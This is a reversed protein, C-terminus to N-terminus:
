RRKFVLPVRDPTNSLYQESSTIRAFRQEFTEGNFEPEEKVEVRYKLMMMTIVAVSETEFFRRGLCARVGSSFPLFADRPWDELFRDPRFTHPDKWYRPNYHLAPLHLQIDTGSPVPFTTKGGDVNNVTLITDEAARKPVSPAGPFMRLTEYLVALSLTFRNMDEYTPMGDVDAMIVKIQQYLREQVSPYLALLAFAFCLTHATTEHGALLFIFTNAILEQETIATGGDLDGQAADLLGSFLDYREEKTEANRRSDVLEVMYQRLENIALNLKRTRETLNMTWNPLVLKLFMNASSVHLADKFTMQHGPPVILDSTWTVRRGFGAVGIVFLAIPLTIDVCHDVVIEPKDGWVNDFLDFMIRITEDWVLRTNRESFAPATITRFRKWEEGESAVINRGFVSLVKYVEVPKPFRARSSTVEKIATADALYIITRSPWVSVMAFADQGAAAFDEYGNKIMWSLERIVYRFPPLTHRILQGLPSVPSILVRPGSLHGVGYNARRVKLLTQFVYLGLISLLSLLVLHM